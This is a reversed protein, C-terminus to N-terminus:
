RGARALAQSWFESLRNRALGEFSSGPADIFPAPARGRVKMTYSTTGAGTGSRFTVLDSVRKRNGELRLRGDVRRRRQVVVTQQRRGFNVIRGYFLKSKGRKTNLLGIRVRLKDILAEFTIGERLAGTREPAAAKQQKAGERGIAKLLDQLQLRAGNQLRDFLELGEDLGVFDDRGRRRAM